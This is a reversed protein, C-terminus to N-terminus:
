GECSTCVSDGPAMHVRVTVESGDVEPLDFNVENEQTM